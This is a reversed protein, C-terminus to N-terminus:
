RNATRTRKHNDLNVMSPSFGGPRKSWRAQEMGDELGDCKNRVM